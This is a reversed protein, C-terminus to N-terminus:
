VATYANFDDVAPLLHLQVALGEVVPALEENCVGANDVTVFVHVKDGTRLLIAAPEKVLGDAETLREVQIIETM